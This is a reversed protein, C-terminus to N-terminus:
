DLREADTELVDAIRRAAPHLSIRLGAIVRTGAFRGLAGGADLLAFDAAEILRGAWCAPRANVTVAFIVTRIAESLARRMAIADGRGAFADVVAAIVTGSTLPALEAGAM